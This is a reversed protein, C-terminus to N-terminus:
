HTGGLGKIPIVSQTEEVDQIEESSIGHMERLELKAGILEDRLSESQDLIVQENRSIREIEDEVEEKMSLFEERHEIWVKRDSHSDGYKEAEKWIADVLTRVQPRDGEENRLGNQEIYRAVREKLQKEVSKGIDCTEKVVSERNEIAEWVEPYDRQLRKKAATDSEKILNEPFVTSPGDSLTPSFDTMNVWKMAPRDEQELDNIDSELANLVPQVAKNLLDVAIPKERELRQERLNEQNQFVTFITVSALMFTALAGLIAVSVSAQSALEMRGWNGYLFRGVWASAILLWFYIVAVPAALTSNRMGRGVEELFGMEGDGLGM